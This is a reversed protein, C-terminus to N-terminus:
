ANLNESSQRKFDPLSYHHQFPQLWMLLVLYFWIFAAQLAYNRDKQKFDYLLYISSFIFIFFETELQDFIHWGFLYPM